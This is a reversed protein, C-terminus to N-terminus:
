GKPIQPIPPTPPIKPTKAAPKLKMKFAAALALATAILGGSLLPRYAM